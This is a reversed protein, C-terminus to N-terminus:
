RRPVSPLGAPLQAPGPPQPHAPAGPVRAAAGCAPTCVGAAAAGPQLAQPEARARLCSPGSSTLAHGPGLEPKGISLIVDGGWGGETKGEQTRSSSGCTGLCARVQLVRALM